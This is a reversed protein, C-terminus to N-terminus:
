KLKLIRQALAKKALTYIANFEEPFASLQKTFEEADNAMILSTMDPFLYVFNKLTHERITQLISKNVNTKKCLYRLTPGQFDIVEERYLLNKIQKEYIDRKKMGNSLLSLM